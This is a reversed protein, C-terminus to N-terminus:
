HLVQVQESAEAKLERLLPLEVTFTTGVGLTSEVKLCGNHAEVIRKTVSLGLGVGPISLKTFKTRRFPEFIHPLDEPSIGIGEDSISIIALNQKKAISVEISGGNPSYKIANSLINNLVQSIRAGDCEAKLVEKNRILNFRHVQSVSKHLAVADEVLKLLDCKVKEIELNGAEIQSSDLLDSVLRELHKAQRRSM